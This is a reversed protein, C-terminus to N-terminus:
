GKNGGFPKLQPLLLLLLLLRPTKMLLQRACITTGQDGVMRAVRASTLGKIVIKNNTTSMIGWDHQERLMALLLLLLFLWPAVLM